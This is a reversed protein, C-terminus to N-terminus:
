GRQQPAAPAPKSLDQGTVLINATQDYGLTAPDLVVMQGGNLTVDAHLPKGEVDTEIRAIRGVVAGHIDEVPAGVIKPPVLGIGNLAMPAITQALVSGPALAVFVLLALWARM